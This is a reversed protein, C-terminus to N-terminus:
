GKIYGTAIRQLHGIRTPFNKIKIIPRIMNQISNTKHQWPSMLNKLGRRFKQYVKLHYAKQRM